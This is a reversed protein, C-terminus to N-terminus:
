RMARRSRRDIVARLSKRHDVRAAVLRPGAITSEGVLSERGAPGPTTKRASWGPGAPGLGRGERQGRDCEVEHCERPSM